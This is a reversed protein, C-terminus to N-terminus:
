ILTTVSSLTQKLHKNISLIDKSRSVIVLFWNALAINPMM